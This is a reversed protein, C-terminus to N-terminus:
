FVSWQIVLLAWVLCLLILNGYLTQRTRYAVLAWSLAVPLSMFQTERIGGELLFLPVCFVPILWFLRVLRRQRIQSQGVVRTLFPMFLLISIVLVLLGKFAPDALIGSSLPQMFSKLDLFWAGSIVYSLMIAASLVMLISLLVLLFRNFDFLSFQGFAFLLLPFFIIGRPYVLLALAYVTGCDLFVRVLGIDEDTLILLRHLVYLLATLFLLPALDTLQHLSMLNALLFGFFVLLNNREFYAERRIIGNLWFAQVILLPVVLILALLPSFSITGFLTNLQVGDPFSSRGFQVFWLFKALIIM